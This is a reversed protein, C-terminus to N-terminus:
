KTFKFLIKGYKGSCADNYAAEFQTLDRPAVVAHNIIFNPDALTNLSSQFDQPFSYIISGVLTIENRVIHVIPLNATPPMGVLVVKGGAKVVRVAQEVTASVGACELVYDFRQQEVEEPSFTKVQPLHENMLVLKDANIDCVAVNMGYYSALSVALMGESGCGIILLQKNSNIEFHQLAHVIVALPEALVARELPMNDHIRLAYKAEIVFEEQFIGQANVGLSKKNLCINRKGIRCNECTDCFSNPVIVVKDGLAFSTDSGAEIIEGVVEHGAVVPYTAHALRGKFVSVDSGCIGAILTRIKLENAQVEKENNTKQLTIEGPKQVVISMVM